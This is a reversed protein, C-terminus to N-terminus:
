KEMEIKVLELSSIMGKISEINTFKFVLEPQLSDFDKFDLGEAIQKKTVTRLVLFVEDKKNKYTGWLHVDKSGMECMTVNDTKGFKINKHIM